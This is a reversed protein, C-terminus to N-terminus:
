PMTESVVIDMLEKHIDQWNGGLNVTKISVKHGQIDYKLHLDYEVTPYLLIGECSEYAEGRQQINKLYAFIQYLNSSRITSKYYTQLANAYYKTDIIIYRDPAQISIDTCMAPLLDFSSNGCPTADWAIHESGKVKYGTGQKVLEKKYFNRVFKEFLSAMAGHSRFFDTFTRDGPVESILYMHYVMECVNMLFAYFANNRHIRVQSFIAPGLPIEEIENFLRHIPLLEEILEKPLGKHLILRRITTKLIQNHLVNHNFDDFECHLKANPILQQKLTESFVIKGRVGRISESQSVYERDLGRKILHRSGSALVRAFLELLDKSDDIDVDVQGAEELQNWAYCLLYYINAVPIKMM